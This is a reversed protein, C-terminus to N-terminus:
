EARAEIILRAASDDTCTSLTIEMKGDTERKYFSTDSDTTEFINYITYAVKKGSLDTINIKDGKSLKKNDSFFLGNRYNHGVIVINGVTNLVANQPWIVAVATKLSPDTVKELIPSKLGTKPIQISGVMNFGKYQQKKASTTTGSSSGGGSSNGTENTEINGIETNSDNNNTDPNSGTNGTETSSDPTDIIMGELADVANESDKKTRYRTYYDFGLYGLLGVVALIIIVLIVTLFTSYKRSM